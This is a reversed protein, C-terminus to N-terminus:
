EDKENTDEEIDSNFGYVEVCYACTPCKLWDELEVHDLMYGMCKPCIHPRM